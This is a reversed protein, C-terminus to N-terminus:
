PNEYNETRMDALGLEENQEETREYEETVVQLDGEGIGAVYSNSLPDDIILSYGFKKGDKMDELDRLFAAMTSNEGENYRDGLCFGINKTLEELIRTLIGDLTSVVSGLTGNSLELGLEPIALSATDSKIIFRSFDELGLVRLSIRKAKESVGGGGKVENSKAGCVDCSFAMIVAEKFHPINTMCMKVVGEKFCAFCRTPMEVAEELPNVSSTAGAPVAPAPPSQPLGPVPEEPEQPKHPKHPEEPEQPQDESLYGMDIMQQWTRTYNEIRLSPDHLALHYKNFDHSIFSNGSPDDLEVTFAKSGSKLENLKDLFDDIKQGTVPDSVKREPQLWSLEDHVKAILGEVTTFCAKQSTAPIEFDIEPIRVVAWESKVIERNLLESSNVHLWIKVGKESLSGASQVENNKYGCNDCSFSMVVIDKFFPISCLLLRTMGQGECSACFSEIQTVPEDPNIFVNRIESM